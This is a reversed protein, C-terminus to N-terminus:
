GASTMLGKAQAVGDEFTRARQESSRLVSQLSVNVTGIRRLLDARSVIGVGLTYAERQCEQSPEGSTVIVGHWTGGLRGRYTDMGALVDRVAEAGVQGSARAHKVQVALFGKGGIALVDAGGDGSACTLVVDQGEAELLAAVCAEFDSASLRDVGAGDLPPDLDAAASQPQTPGGSRGWLLEARLEGAAGDEDAIPHLFDRALSLKRTLLADLVEDFSSGESTAFPDRLIPYYVTVPRIQGIRYARDTAQAEVAPNWWRGYHIVHNAETITLGVGAVFPSLVLVGFGSSTRFTDLVRKRGERTRRTAESSHDQDPVGATTGNIIPVRVGFEEGVVLSLLNQASVHRAFIIAKEGKARVERLAGLTVRLKASACVLQDTTADPLGDSTLWPHQSLLSLRQLVALHKGLPGEKRLVALCDAHADHEERSMDCFLRAIRREPLDTLENKNRRILFAQPTGFFLRNRLQDLVPVMVSNSDPIHPARLPTEYTRTFEAASGLLAPQFTDVINWLDLLRNEVPTGTSAIHFPTVMAKLAVSIKTNLMKYRQAEDTVIVSWLPRGQWLQAFSHQYNVITEYTTVVVRFKMLKEADLSPRGTDTERGSAPEAARVRAVSPGHLTLWPRFVEGDDRFRAAMERLWIENEVLMLPAVILIPRWPAADGEGQRDAIGGSEILRALYTLIQLTKGLGMDDALLVGRRAPAMAACRALWRVGDVQHQKLTVNDALSLPLAFPPEPTSAAAAIAASVDDDVLEEENTYILLYKKGSSPRAVSSVGKGRRRTLEELLEQDVKVSRGQHEITAQNRAVASAVKERFVALASASDFGIEIAAGDASSLSIRAHGRDRDGDTGDSGDTASKVNDAPKSSDGSGSEIQDSGLGEVIRQLVGGSQPNSPMPTFKLDGVGTVRPGYRIEVDGLVGDFFAEPNREARERKEGDVRAVRKMRELVAHQREDLLIRVRRGDDGDLAYVREAKPNRLFVTAFESNGLEPCNPVFSLSGDAHYQFDLALQSPVIVRNSALHEDLQVGLQEADERLAAFAEWANAKTRAIDPLVNYRDMAAVLGHTRPDLRFTRGAAKYHVVYGYREISAVRGALLFQYLYTFDRRGIESERDIALLFPSPDLYRGLFDIGATALREYNDWAIRVIEGEVVGEGRDLAQEVNLALAAGASSRLVGSPWSDPPLQDDSNGPSLMSPRFELYDATAVVDLLEAVRTIVIEQPM